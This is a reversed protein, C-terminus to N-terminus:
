VFVRERLCVSKRESPGTGTWRPPLLCLHHGAGGRDEERERVCESVRERERGCVCGRERDRVCERESVCVRERLHTLVQGALHFFVDTSRQEELLAKM